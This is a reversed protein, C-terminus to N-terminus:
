HTSVSITKRQSEPPKPLNLELVGNKLDARVGALDITSNLQFRRFYSKNALERVDAEVTLVQNELSIEIAARPVGPLDMLIGYGRETEFIDVKPRLRSSKLAKMAPTKAPQNLSHTTQM